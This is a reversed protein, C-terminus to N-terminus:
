SPGDVSGDAKRHRSVFSLSNNCSTSIVRNGSRSGFDSDGIPWVLTESEALRQELRCIPDRYFKFRRQSSATRLVRGVSPNLGGGRQQRERGTRTRSKLGIEDRWPTNAPKAKRAPWFRTANIQRAEYKGLLRRITNLDTMAESQPM